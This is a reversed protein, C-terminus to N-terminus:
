RVYIHWIVTITDGEAPTWVEGLGKGDGWSIGVNNVWDNTIGWSFGEQKLIGNHFVMISFNSNVTDYRVGTGLIYYTNAIDNATLNHWEQQPISFFLEPRAIWPAPTYGINNNADVTICSNLPLWQGLGSHDLNMLPGAMCLCVNDQTNPEFAVYYLLSTDMGPVFFINTGAALKDPLDSLNNSKKLRRNVEEGIRTVLQSLKTTLSDDTLAM